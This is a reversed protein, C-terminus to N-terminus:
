GGLFTEVTHSAPREDGLIAEVMESALIYGGLPTEMLQNSPFQCWRGEINEIQVPVSSDNQDRATTQTERDKTGQQKREDNTRDNEEAQISSAVILM